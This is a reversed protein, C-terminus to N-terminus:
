WEGDKQQMSNVSVDSSGASKDTKDRGNSKIVDDLSESAISELKSKPHRNAKRKPLDFSANPQVAEFDARKHHSGFNDISPVRVPRIPAGIEPRGMSGTSNSKRGGQLEEPSFRMASANTMIPPSPRRGRRASRSHHKHVTFDSSETPTSSTTPMSSRREHRRRRGTKQHVGNSMGKPWIPIGFKDVPVSYSIDEKKEEEATRQPPLDFSVSRTPMSSRRTQKRKTSHTSNSELTRIESKETLPAVEKTKCSTSSSPMSSRRGQRRRRSKSSTSHNSNSELPQQAIPIGYKDVLPQQSSPKDGLSSRRGQRRRRGHSSTQTIPIGFKDVKVDNQAAERPIDLSHQSDPKDGLSSRRGQRRRKGYGSTNPIPIGFKDVKVDGPPAESSLDIRSISEQRVPMIPMSSRRAQRRRGHRQQQQQVANSNNYDYKGAVVETAQRIIESSTMTSEDFFDVCDDEVDYLSVTLSSTSATNISSNSDKSISLDRNKTLPPSDGNDWRGECSAKTPSPSLLLKSPSGQTQWKGVFEPHSTPNDTIIQFQSEAKFTSSDSFTEDFRHNKLTESVFDELPTARVSTDAHEHEYIPELPSGSMSHRRGAKKRTRNKQQM